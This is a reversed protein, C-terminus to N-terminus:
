LGYTIAQYQELNNVKNSLQKLREKRMHYNIIILIIFM